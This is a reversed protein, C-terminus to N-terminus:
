VAEDDELSFKRSPREAVLTDMVKEVEAFRTAVLERLEQNRKLDDPKVGSLIGKAQSVLRALDSDEMLNRAEFTEFFEQWNEVFSNQRFGKEKEGPKVTLKDTAHNVMRAFAERLAFKAETQVEAYMEKLKANEAARIEEPLEDPVSLAFLRYEIDFSAALKEPTPYDSEDYLSGLGGKEPEAENVPRKAAEKAAPYAAVLAPVLQERLAKRDAEVKAVIESVMSRKVLNVGRGIGTALMSRKLVWTYTDNLAAICANYEDCVILQKTANVRKSIKKAKTEGTVADTEETQLKSRNAQCRNGWAHRSLGFLMANRLIQIENTTNM